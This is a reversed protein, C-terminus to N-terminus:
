GGSLGGRSFTGEFGAHVQNVLARQRAVEISNPSLDVALVQGGCYALQVSAVGEGCDLELIKKGPAQPLLSFMKEKSFLDPHKPRAYRELVLPDMSTIATRVAVRDFFEREAHYRAENQGNMAASGESTNTTHM